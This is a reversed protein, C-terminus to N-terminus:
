EARRHVSDIEIRVNSAGVALHLPVSELDGPQPIPNGSKAVRALVVVSRASSLTRGPIMSASDDLRFDAPLDAVTLRRAALPPGQGDAARAIVFVVDNPSAQKALSAAISVRGSISAAAAPAAKAGVTM